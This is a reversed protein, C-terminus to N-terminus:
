ITSDTAASAGAAPAWLMEPSEDPQHDILGLRTGPAAAVSVSTSVPTICVATLVRLAGVQEALSARKYRSYILEDPQLLM